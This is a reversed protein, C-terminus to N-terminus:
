AILAVEGAAIKGRLAKVFGRPPEADAIRAKLDALPAAAKAAAIEQRKYGEIQKLIDAV